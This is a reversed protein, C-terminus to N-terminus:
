ADGEAVIRDRMAIGDVHQPAERKAQEILAEFQAATGVPPDKPNLGFAIPAQGKDVRHQNVAVLASRLWTRAQEISHELANQANLHERSQTFWMEKWQDRERLVAEVVAFLERAKRRENEVMATAQEAALLAASTAEKSAADARRLEEVSKEAETKWNQAEVASRLVQEELDLRQRHQRIALVVCLTVWVVSAVISETM